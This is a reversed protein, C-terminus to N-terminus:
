AEHDFDGDFGDSTGDPRAETVSRLWSGSLAFSAGRPPLPLIHELGLGGSLSDREWADFLPSGHFEALEFVSFARLVGARPGFSYLLNQRLSAGTLARDLDQLTDYGSADFRLALRKGLAESPQLSLSVFLAYQLMDFDNLDHHHTQDYRLGVLLGGREGLWPQGSLGAGFVGRVDERDSALTESESGELTVNDDWEFGALANARLRQHGQAMERDRLLLRARVATESTPDIRLLEQLLSVAEGERGLDFLALARVLLTESRLGPELRAAAQLARDAGEPEGIARMAMGRYFHATGSDPVHRIEEDLLRRAAAAGGHDLLVRAIELRARPRHEPWRALLRRTEDAARGAQGARGLQRALAFALAPDDPHAAVAAEIRALARATTDGEPASAESASTERAATTRPIVAPLVLILFLVLVFRASEIRRATPAVFRLSRTAALNSSRAVPLSAPRAVFRDRGPRM